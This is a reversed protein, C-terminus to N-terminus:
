HGALGLPRGRRGGHLLQPQAVGLAAGQAEGRVAVEGAGQLPRQAARPHRHGEGGAEGRVRLDGVDARRGGARGALGLVHLDAQGLPAVGLLHAGRQVGGQRRADVDELAHLGQAGPRQGVPDVCRGPAHLQRPHRRGLQRLGDLREEGGVHDGDLLAGLVAQAVDVGPRGHGARRRGLLCTTGYQV